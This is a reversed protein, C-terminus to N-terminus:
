PLAEVNVLFRFNGDIMVGLRFQINVSAGASIPTAMTIRSLRATSNLGGGGPQAPPNEDLTVGEIFVENNNSDTVTVDSSSLLRIDAEGAVRNGSTTINVVRFRLQRIDANTTNKFKRRILLTGFAANQPNAGAATRVRACASTAGGGGACQPDILSAKVVANRQIPSNTNEPGPAGLIAIDSDNGYIGEPVTGVFLFDNDNQGTDQPFGTTLNRVYSYEGDATPIGAIGTGERYLAPATSHGAADLRNDITFNTPTTTRFLAVGAGDPIDTTYTLDPVAKGAGGYNSLSYGGASNNAVLFHGRPPIVKGNGITAITTLVGNADPAALAFGASGDFASVIIPAETRNYLEIFEDNPGNQGRLRFESIILDGLALANITPCSAPDLNNIVLNDVFWGANCAPVSLVDSTMRFRIYVPLGNPNHMGGAAFAELPIRVHELLTKAGTYARRGQLISGKSLGELEGNLRGNYGGQVIFDGLDFTNVNNPYPTSDGQVFPAGVKIELVGGDFAAETIFFHDFEMISTPTLTLGQASGITTSFDSMGGGESTCNTNMPDGPNFDPGYMMSTVVGQESGTSVQVGTVRQFQAVEAQPDNGAETLPPTFRSSAAATEFNEKAFVPTSTIGPSTAANFKAKRNGTNDTDIKNADTDRAQVIYYYVRNLKRNTDTYTLASTTAIKNAATPEFTPELPADSPATPNATTPGPDTATESRYVDYVINATPNASIAPGWGVVLLNCAKPDFVENVGTFIPAPKVIIGQTITISQTLATSVCDMAADRAARVQYYYTKGVVLGQGGDNDNYVTQTAPIDAITVFPGAAQEARSIIFRAAGVVPLITITATNDITNSLSYAPAALPGLQECSTVGAPVSFDEVVTGGAGGNSSSTALVGVGHSAFARWIIAHNEGGFRERDALLISDRSDVFTPNCPSLQMGRMMLLDALFAGRRLATSLPGNRNGGNAQIEAAVLGPRVIHEAAIINPDPPITPDLGQVHTNFEPRYDIPHHTDVSKVLRNGIYFNTGTTTGLRRTGDFFVGPFVNPATEQRMILLERMDWLIPAWLEGGDHVEFPISGPNQDPPAAPNYARDRRTLVNGNLSQYSWRYNTYPIRRIGIDFEGTAYEGEVDDDAMSCALYDGWGEGQGGSEGVLGNGVCGTDGKGVARNNIAHMHEHAVVDFDLSGDARRFGAETFLYMQMRPKAGDATPSMNANDTGSGDQVQAVVGDRGAGGKGFNDQQMNFTAETFGLSYLYDHVINNFYFLSLTGPFIDPDATAPFAVDCPGVLPLCDGGGPGEEVPDQGGFEYSNIFDFHASTFQRTPSFGRIGNTTEDDNARDDSVLVNNGETYNSQFVQSLTRGDALSVPSSLPTLTASFPQDCDRTPLTGTCPVPANEPINRRKAEDAMTYGYNQTSARNTDDEAIQTGGTDTPLYYWGFPSYPSPNLADPQGRLVQGFPNNYILPFLAGGVISFPDEIRARVLSERFGRGSNRAITSPNANEPIYAPRVGRTNTRGAGRRGSLATPTADFIKSQATGAANFSEVLDQVDPRFTSRRSDIPGGGPPGFDASPTRTADKGGTKKRAGQFMTLSFRQLVEGTEADVVNQWVIGSFQPTTLTFKYAHRAEAGLPFITRTVVIDDSFARGGSFRQGAVYRPTATGYAALVRTEGLSDGSYSLGMDRAAYGIAEAPTIAVSNTVKLQPFSDSGVSIVRGERNVNVLVEGKYVPVGEVQQEFVLVSTGMDPILSRSKLQLSALDTKTFRFISQWRQLFGRAIQEADGDTPATLYGARSFLHRPTSTLNNYQVVLPAGGAETQLAQLSKTQTEALARQVVSRKAGLAAVRVDKETPRLGGSRPANVLNSQVAEAASGFLGPMVVALTLLGLAIVLFLRRTNM